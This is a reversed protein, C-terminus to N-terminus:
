SKAASKSKFTSPTISTYSLFLKNFNKLSEFKLEESAQLITQNKAMIVMMAYFLRLQNRYKVASIGYTGRFYRSAMEKQVGISQCLGSISVANPFAMDIEQKLRISIPNKNDAKEIADKPKASKLIQFVDSECKPWQDKPLDMTFAYTPTLKPDPNLIIYSQWFFEVADLFKWNIISFPPAALAGCGGIEVFRGNSHVGINGRPFDGYAFLLCQPVTEIFDVPRPIRQNRSMHLCKSNLRTYEIDTPGIKLSIKNLRDISASQIEM